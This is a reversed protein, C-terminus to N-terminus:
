RHPTRVDVAGVLAAGVASSVRVESRELATFLDIRQLATGRPSRCYRRSPVTDGISRRGRGDLAPLEGTCRTRTPATAVSPANASSSLTVRATSPKAM